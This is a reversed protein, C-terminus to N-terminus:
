AALHRAQREPAAAAKKTGKSKAPPKSVQGAYDSEMAAAVIGDETGRSRLWEMVLGALRDLAIRHTADTNAYLWDSLAMFNAFPTDRLVLPLTHVFRGSNAILDWYRAFRVLRQMTAFDIRDTALITYPPHPDFVMRYTETHRIIPTGRLRKLIGFQIEHPNLAYLKDFGRAFSDIDEGPLGAILDVHLHAHSHVCLWRINDAAKENNQKRSVLTQVEPNFSQIGIEFQLTGPPFRTIADKLADPLHDPVVEFHAFVPDEPNAELKDLFFQMIKLSSKINLNFTRDVFKFLRAGRAHLEELEALFADLDFPWATKDLSSLCFECKFPCGRSAEVYLTRHAIDEGTYLRYPLAIDSLPPQAGAHIKMLPKPGNLIQRCLQPFTVDGWGTVLYDALRVIQQEGPEYSVEPGGLVIAVEPAVRKLMAVVKTTEEVNWIYVGFGIIRPEHALLKEVVDATKAGIVFEHLHTVEQLGGMNALLYRLGLSAHTYRANLTSLLITM